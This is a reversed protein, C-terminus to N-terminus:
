SIQICSEAWNQLAKFDAPRRKRWISAAAACWMSQLFHQHLVKGELLHTALPFHRVLEIPVETPKVQQLAPKNRAKHIFYVQALPVPQTPFNHQPNFSFKNIGESVPQLDTKEFSLGEVTNEWIKLQPYAPLIFPEKKENFWIATLDDSLLPAGAQVFATATTSKGAGPVGMFCYAGAGVQVASAHLLLLGRQLLICGLAESVTFLSLVSADETYSDVFLTHGGVAKYAAIGKWSMFITDSGASGSRARVGRRHIPTQKLTPLTLSTLCIRIDEPQGTETAPNLEPLSIDSRILLNFAFYLPM